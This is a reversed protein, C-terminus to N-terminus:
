AALTIVACRNYRATCSLTARVDSSKLLTQDFWLATAAQYKPHTHASLMSVSFNCHTDSGKVCRHVQTLLQLRQRFSLSSKGVGSRGKDGSLTGRKRWGGFRGPREWAGARGPAQRPVSREADCARRSGSAGDTSRRWRQAEM